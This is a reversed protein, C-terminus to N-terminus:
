LGLEEVLDELWSTISLPASGEAKNNVTLVVERGSRLGAAALRRLEESMTSDPAARRDFPAFRAKAEDYRLDRRLMWRLVMPARGGTRAASRRGELATPGGAKDRSPRAAKDQDVAPAVEGTQTSGAVDREALGEPPGCAPVGPAACPSFTADPVGLRRAQERPTPMTPHVSWAHTAGTRRLVEVYESTLLAPTRLEVAVPMAPKVDTLFAELRGAFGSPGGFAGPDQPPFQLLLIGREPGLGAVLPGIVVESAYSADLVLPNRRGRRSGFRALEPLRATTCLEHAKVLCRFRRPLRAGLRRWDAEKPPGYFSHDVSVASLLPHEAYAALGDRALRRGPHERDYVLGSWGPFSWSCTGCFLRDPARRGLERLPESAPAPRVRDDEPAGFLGLQDGALSM